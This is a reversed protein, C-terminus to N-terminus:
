GQAGEEDLGERVDAPADAKGIITSNKQWDRIAVNQACCSRLCSLERCSIANTAISRRVKAELDKELAAVQAEESGEKFVENSTAQPALEPLFFM